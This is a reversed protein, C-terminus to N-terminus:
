AGERMNILNLIKKCVINWSYNEQVYKKGNDALKQAYDKNSIISDLCNIFEERNSFYLGGESKDCHARTVKCGSHVIVPIDQLWAEMIVISFSEMVSPQILVKAGKIADFKDNDNIVGLEIVNSTKLILDEIEPEGKGVLLLKLNNNFKESYDKFYELLLHVNKGKVQRGVYIIYDDKINYKERFRLANGEIADIGVGSVGCKHSDIKYNSLVWNKEEDTNFILGASNKFMYKISDLHSMPEDHICPIIFSNKPCIKSGWYTTGFLYPIFIFIYGDSNKYIFDYLSDSNVTEHHLQLEEAFTLKDGNLLKGFLRDHLEKNRKRLSFRRVIINGYYDIEEKYYDKGWDWFSDKGCTTLIEAYVGIQNFKKAIGGAYREAGGTLDEGFWPVVIGIKKM